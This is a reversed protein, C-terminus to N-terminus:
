PFLIDCFILNLSVLNCYYLIYYEVLYEEKRCMYYSHLSHTLLNQKESLYNFINTIIPLSPCPNVLWNSGM